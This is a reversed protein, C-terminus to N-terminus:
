RADIQAQVFQVLNGFRAFLDGNLDEVDIVIECRTEIGVLVDVVNLSELGLEYLNSDPHLVTTPPLNLVDSLLASLMPLVDVAGVATVEQVTTTNM